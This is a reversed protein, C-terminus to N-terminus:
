IKYVLLKKTKWHGQGGDSRLCEIIVKSIFALLYKEICDFGHLFDLYKSSFLIM